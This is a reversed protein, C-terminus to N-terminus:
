KRLKMVYFVVTALLIVLAIPIRWIGIGSTIGLADQIVAWQVYAFIAVLDLKIWSLLYISNKYQYPANQDTIPVMYNFQHPVKRLLTLGIFILLAFIPLIFLFAKSGWGDAEGSGNFHIAITQPLESWKVILYVFSFLLIIISLGDHWRELNTKPIVLKPLKSM